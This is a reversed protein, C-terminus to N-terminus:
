YFDNRFGLNQGYPAVNMGSGVNMPHFPHVANGSSPTFSASAAAPPPHNRGHILIQQAQKSVQGKLEQLAGKLQELQPQDLEEVPSEWWGRKQVAKKIRNLEEGRKKEMELEHLVQTLQMNLERVRAGRHAEILQMAGSTHPLNGTLFRDVVNEVSPHGFSFAKKGPSFVIIGVEAGCLTALESAKKFLGSRRKSFTVMLNSENPIKVMELKQRGKSKRPM